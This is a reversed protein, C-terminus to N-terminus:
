YVAQVHHSFPFVPAPVMRFPESVMGWHQLAGPYPHLNHEVRVKRWTGKRGPSLFSEPLNHIEMLGKVLCVWDLQAMEM